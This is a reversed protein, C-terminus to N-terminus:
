INVLSRMKDIQKQESATLCEIKKILSNYENYYKIQVIAKRYAERVKKYYLDFRLFKPLTSDQFYILLKTFWNAEKKYKKHLKNLEMFFPNESMTNNSVSVNSVRYLVYTSSTFELEFKNVNKIISFWTPDDEFLRFEKLLDRANSEEVIEKSYLVSPTNFFRGRMVMNLAYTRSMKKHSYYLNDIVRSRSYTVKNNEIYLPIGIRLKRSNLNDYENYLNTSFCFLDDGAILKFPEEDILNLIQLYNYVTGRNQDNNILVCKCFLDGHEKIWEKCRILTDDRSCDETIILRTKIKKGYHMVQYRISELTQVVTDAQNYTMVAFTFDAECMCNGGGYLFINSGSDQGM